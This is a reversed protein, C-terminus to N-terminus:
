IERNLEDKIDEKIGKLKQYEKKFQYSSLINSGFFGGVILIWVIIENNEYSYRFSLMWLFFLWICYYTIGRYPDEESWKRM